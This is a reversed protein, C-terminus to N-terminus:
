WETNGRKEWPQSHDITSAFKRELDARKREAHAVADRM